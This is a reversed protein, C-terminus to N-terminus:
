VFVNLLENAIRHVVPVCVTNGAQKYLRSDSQVSLLFSDPFGQARFCERPTMKRIGHKTKILCVNHGGTGMSATLTPIMHRTNKRVYARRWQYVSPDDPDDDQMADCLKEYIDGQYKESTYYYCSPVKKDFDIIDKIQTTLVLRGPWKFSGVDGEDRFALIYIRERCQPLNGYDATNMVKFIVTYGIDHLTNCIVRMTNGDDHTSLAKVNEFFAVRPQKEKLIRILEFFLTGRGQADHFGERRGAVSFPQCPFGAILVDIDPIWKPDIERIDRRSLTNYFNLAYTEAPYKDIENAYVIEYGGTIAFGLDIGGVGSFFSGVKVM